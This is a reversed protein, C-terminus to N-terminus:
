PCSPGSVAGAKSDYNWTIGPCNSHTASLMFTDTGVESSITIPASKNFGSLTSSSLAGAKYIQHQAYYAEEASAANKLDSQITAEFGRKRQNSFQPIAITALIGIIVIVVLIEILSFGSQNRLKKM